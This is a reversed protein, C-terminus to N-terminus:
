RRKLFLADHGKLVASELKGGALARWNGEGVSTLDIQREKEFINILVAGGEFERWLIGDFAQMTAQSMTISRNPEISFHLTQDSRMPADHFFQADFPEKDAYTYQASKEFWKLPSGVKGEFSVGLMVGDDLNVGQGSSVTLTLVQSSDEVEPLPVQFALTEHPHRNVITIAGRETSVSVHPSGSTIKELQIAKRTHDDPLLMRVPGLARGLWPWPEEAGAKLEPWHTFTRTERDFPVFNMLGIKADFLCCSGLVFRNLRASPKKVANFKHNVYNFKSVRGSWFRLANAATAFSKLEHDSVYPFGEAETGDIINFARQDLMTQDAMIIKDPFRDKLRKLFRNVGESYTNRGGLRSNDVIGDVNADHPQWVESKMIDFQVGDFHRHTSTLLREIEDFLVDSASRGLHTPSHTSYNYKWMLQQDNGWPGDSIHPLLVARNAAHKRLPASKRRRRFTLMQGERSIVRALESRSWDLSGDEHLPVIRFDRPRDHFLGDHLHFEKTSSVKVTEVPKNGIASLVKSMPGYLWHQPAFESARLRQSGPRLACGNVHLLAFKEPYARKFRRTYEDIRTLPLRGVEEDLAKLIMGQLDVYANEWHEYTEFRTFGLDIEPRRFYFASPFELPEAHCVDAVPASLLLTLALFTTRPLSLSLMQISSRPNKM